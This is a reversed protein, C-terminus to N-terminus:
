HAFPLPPTAPCRLEPRPVTHNLGLSGASRPLPCGLDGEGAWAQLCTLGAGTTGGPTRVQTSPIAAGPDIQPRPPLLRRCCYCCCYCPGSNRARPWPPSRASGCVPGCGARATQRPDWSPLPARSFPGPSSYPWCSPPARNPSRGSPSFFFFFAYGSTVSFELHRLGLCPSSQGPGGASSYSRLPRGARLRPFPLSQPQRDRASTRKSGARGGALRVSSSVSVRLPSTVGQPDPLVRLRTKAM